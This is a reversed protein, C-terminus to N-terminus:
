GVRGGARRGAGGCRCTRLSTPDFSTLPEIGEEPTHLTGNGDMRARCALWTDNTYTYTEVQQTPVQLVLSSGPQTVNALGAVVRTASRRETVAFCHLVSSNAATHLTANASGGVRKTANTTCAFTELNLPLSSPVNCELTVNVPTPLLKPKAAIEDIRLADAEARLLATSNYFVLARSPTRGAIAVPCVYPSPPPM